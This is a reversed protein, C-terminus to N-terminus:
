IKDPKIILQTSYASNLFQHYFDVVRIGIIQCVQHKVLSIVIMMKLFILIKLIIKM